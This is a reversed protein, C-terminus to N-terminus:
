VHRGTETNINFSGHVRDDEDTLNELPYLFTNLTQEIIGISAYSDLAEAARQMTLENGGAWLPHEPLQGYHAPRGNIGMM